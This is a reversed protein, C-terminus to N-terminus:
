PGLAHVLQPAPAPRESPLGAGLTSGPVPGVDGESSCLASAPSSDARWPNESPPNEPPPTESPPVSTPPVAWAPLPAGSLPEPTCSFGTMGDGDPEASTGDDPLGDEM